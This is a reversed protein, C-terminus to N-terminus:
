RVLDLLWWYDRSVLDRAMQSNKQTETGGDPVALGM